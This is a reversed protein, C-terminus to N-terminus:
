RPKGRNELTPQTEEYYADILIAHIVDLVQADKPTISYLWDIIPDPLRSLVVSAPTRTAPFGNKKAIALHRNVTEVAIGMRDAIQDISYGKARLRAAEESRKNPM